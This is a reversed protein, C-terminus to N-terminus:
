EPATLEADGSEIELFPCFAPHIVFGREGTKVADALRRLKKMDYQVDYIYLDGRQRKLQSRVGLFAFWLMIEILRPHQEVVVDTESLHSELERRSLRQRAGIFYYPLDEAEPFVDRIELGIENAIDRSYAECGKRIDDVSIKDHQLNVASSKCYNLLNLFNRPRMLSREILYEVTDEGGIHSVSMTRWMQEFTDDADFGNYILRLRMFELLLDPDTWDLSVRSEKGRDPSEDVLLEFVDNRIFVTSQVQVEERRFYREIKRTAELLGRLIVIDAAEVGRTPWGKDINDFLVVLLHKQKLYGVVERRLAPIDHSYILETVETASLYSPVQGPYKEEFSASVRNVLSLMRESFDAEGLAKDKAWLSYLRQYADRIEHNHMQVQRDKQLLKHAVELLLIYEWFATAVHEQVADSLLNLVLEKLRKLQHGEPKLDLIVNRRDARLENRVQFFLATKGSGKRGVALRAGDLVQSYEDTQLFYEELSTVENEAAPAGLDLSALRKPDRKVGAGQVAQLGEMVRPALDNIYDDVDEPRHYVCVFERYDLPVPENGDQLILANKDLGYALGALFAGRLNNERFDTARSSLLHVVVAISKKVSRYADLTSLRSQENPDFSRFRIRAKKIKSIIRISSDTKHLTDLVFIPATKDVETAPFTISSFDEVGEILTELQSSNTYSSYGITDFIGLRTIEKKEPSIAENVTLLLRKGSGLAFGVEFTVNFNLRTIDAVVLDASAIEDLVSEFIFRGPMDFEKWTRLSLDTRVNELKRVAASFNQGLVDPDDPFIAIV